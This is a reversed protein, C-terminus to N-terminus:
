SNFKFKEATENIEFEYVKNEELMEVFINCITDGYYWEINEIAEMYSEALTVGHVKDKKRKTDDWVEVTYEVPYM